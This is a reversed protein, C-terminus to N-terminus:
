GRNLPRRLLSPGDLWGVLGHLDRLRSSRDLRLHLGPEILGILARHSGTAPRGVQLVLRLPRRQKVLLLLFLLIAVELCGLFALERIQQAVSRRLLLALFAGLLLLDDQFFYIFDNSGFHGALRQGFRLGLLDDAQELVIVVVLVLGFLGIVDGRKISFLFDLLRFWLFDLLRFLFVGLRGGSCQWDGFVFGQEVFLGVLFGDAFDLFLFLVEKVLLLFFGILAEKVLLLFFGILVKEVLLLFFCILAEKVLM